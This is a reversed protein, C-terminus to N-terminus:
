PREVMTRVLHDNLEAGRQTLRWENAAGRGRGQAINEILGHRELRALLKSAQGQDVIEAIRSLGVNSIGPCEDIAALVRMTRYTLRISLGQLPHAQPDRRTFEKVAIPAYMLERRAGAPGLYPLVIFAMLPNLLDTLPTAHADSVRAHLLSLAGGVVGEATLPAPDRSARARARDVLGALGALVEVRRELARPGACAYDVICLRALEPHEHFFELLACLGARISTAWSDGALYAPEARRRAAAVAEQFASSLCDERNLFLDYFTKRSVGAATVVTAVTVTEIGDTYARYVAADIMRQRQALRVGELREARTATRAAASENKALL